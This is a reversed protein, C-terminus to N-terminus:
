LGNAQRVLAADGIPERRVLRDSEFIRFEAAGGNEVVFDFAANGDTCEIIISGGTGISVGRVELFRGVAAAQALWRRINKLISLAQEIVRPQPAEVDNALLSEPDAYWELLSDSIRSLAEDAAIMARKAQDSAAQSGIQRREGDDVVAGGSSMYKYSGVQLSRM